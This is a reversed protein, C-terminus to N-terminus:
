AGVAFDLHLGSLTGSAAIHWKLPNKDIIDPIVGDFPKMLGPKTTNFAASRRLNVVSM